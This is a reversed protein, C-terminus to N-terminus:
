RSAFSAEGYAEVRNEYIGLSSQSGPDIFVTGQVLLESNMFDWVEVTHRGPSLQVTARKDEFNRLEAVEQGDIWVNVWEDDRSVLQVTGPRNDQEKKGHHGTDSHHDGRGDSHDDRDSPRQHHGRGKRAFRVPNGNDIHGNFYWVRAEEGDDVSVRTRADGIRVRHTGEDVAIWVTTDSDIYEGDVFIDEVQDSVILLRGDALAAPTLLLALLM